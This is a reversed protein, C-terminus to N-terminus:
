IVARRHSPCLETTMYFVTDPECNEKLAEFLTKAHKKLNVIACVSKEETMERAIQQLPTQEGPMIRWAVQVRRLARYMAENNPCVETSHWDIGPIAQFDPQTATSFLM